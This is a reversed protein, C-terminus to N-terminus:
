MKPGYWFIMTIQSIVAHRDIIARINAQLERIAHIYHETIEAM